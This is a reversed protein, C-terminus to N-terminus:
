AATRASLVSAIEDAWDRIAAWDRADTAPMRNFPFRLKAPDIVGGFIAVAIPEIDPVKALAGDLQHRADLVDKDELTLPGMAFVAVPM